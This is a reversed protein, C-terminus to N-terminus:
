RHSLPLVSSTGSSSPSQFSFSHSPSSCPTVKQPSSLDGNHLKWLLEENERSLRNNVKSENQLSEQLMAQETSLQRSLAAYKDMRAKLDENEQQVKKLSEDLKVNKEVLEDIKVVKEKQQHLQKNKIDLVVKLSELEQELYFTHPDKQSESLERRKNEEATLKEMLDANEQSLAQIQASLAAEADKLHSNLSALELSHSKRLEELSQEHQQKVCRLQEVQSHKLELMTADHSVELHEMQKQLLAKFKDAEEQYTIHAKDCEAQYFVQLRQELEELDKQHQEQLRGMACELADQLDQKEKELLESSKVSCVLEGRLNVLEQSLQRCQETAEDREALMQQLIITVAEFRCNSAALLRGLNHIRQENRDDQSLTPPVVDPSGCNQITQSASAQQRCSTKTKNEPKQPTQCAYRSPTRKLPSLTSTSVGKNANTAPTHTTNQRTCRGPTPILRAKLVVTKVPTQKHAALGSLQTKAAGENQNGHTSPKNLSRSPVPTKRPLRSAPSPLPGTYSPRLPTPPPKSINLQPKVSEATAPEKTTPTQLSGAITNQKSQPTGVYKSVRFDIGCNTGPRQKISQTSPRPSAVPPQSLYTGRPQNPFTQVQNRSKESSAGVTRGSETVRSIRNVERPSNVSPRKSSETTSAMNCQSSNNPTMSKTPKTHRSIIIPTSLKSIASMEKPPRFTCPLSESSSRPRTKAQHLASGSKIIKNSSNKKPIQKQDNQFSKDPFKEFSSTCFTASQAPPEAVKSLPTQETKVKIRQAVPASKVAAASVSSNCKGSSLINGPSQIIKGGFQSARSKVQRQVNNASKNSVTLFANNNSVKTPSIRSTGSPREKCNSLVNTQMPKQQPPSGSETPKHETHTLAKSNLNNLESESVNIEMNKVKRASPLVIPSCGYEFSNSELLPPFIKGGTNQLPTSTQGSTDMDQISKVRDLQLKKENDQNDECVFTMQLGGHNETPMVMPFTAVSEDPLECNDSLTFTMGLYALGSNNKECLDQQTPTTLIRSENHLATHRASPSIYSEDISSFVLPSHDAVCFSNRRLVMEGSSMSCSANEIYGRRSSESSSLQGEGGSDGSTMISDWVNKKTLNFSQSEKTDQNDQTSLGIDCFDVHNNLTTPICAEHPANYSFNFTSHFM